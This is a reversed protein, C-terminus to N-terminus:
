GGSGRVVWRGEVSGRAVKASGGSGPRAVSEEASDGVKDALGAEDAM